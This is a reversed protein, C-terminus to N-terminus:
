FFFFFFFRFSVLNGGWWTWESQQIDTLTQLLLRASWLLANFRWKVNSLPPLHVKWIAEKIHYGVSHYMCQRILPWGYQEADLKKKGGSSHYLRSQRRCWINGLAKEIHMKGETVKRQDVDDAAAAVPFFFFPFSSKKKRKKLCGVAGRWGVLTELEFLYRKVVDRQPITQRRLMAAPVMGRRCIQVPFNWGGIQDDPPQQETM